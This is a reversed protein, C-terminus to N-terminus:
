HQTTLETGEFLHLVVSKGEFIHPLAENARISSFVQLGNNDHLIKSITTLGIETEVILLTTLKPANSERRM